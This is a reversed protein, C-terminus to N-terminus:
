KAMEASLVLVELEEELQELRSEMEDFKELRKNEIDINLEEEAEKENKSSTRSVGCWPCFRFNSDVSRGCGGCVAMYM